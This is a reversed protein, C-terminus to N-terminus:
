TGSTYLFLSVVWRLKVYYNFKHQWLGIMHGIVPISQPALPPERPDHDFIKRAAFYTVTVVGVIIAFTAPDNPIFAM